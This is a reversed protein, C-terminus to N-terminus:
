RFGDVLMLDSSTTSIHSYLLWRGDPSVSLGSFDASVTSEVTGVQSVKGTEFSYFKVLKPSAPPVAFDFYYIGTSTVSWNHGMISDLVRREEGGEVSISWLGNTYAKGYYILKADPSEEPRFAGNTTIQVAKGGASPMRWVNVNEEMPGPIFYVWRGDRSFIPHAISRVEPTSIRQPTGGGAGLIYSAFNGNPGTLASFLLRQGDPSWRPHIVDAGAFSTLKVPNSGDMECM